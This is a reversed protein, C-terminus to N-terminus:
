RRMSAPLVSHKPSNNWLLAYHWPRGTLWYQHDTICVQLFGAALGAKVRTAALLDQQSEVDHHTYPTCM